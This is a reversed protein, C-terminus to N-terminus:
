KEGEKKSNTDGIGKVDLSAPIAGEVNVKEPKKALGCQYVRDDGEDIARLLELANNDFLKRTASPLAMFAEEAEIMRNLNTQMDVLDVYAGLEDYVPTRPNIDTPLIGNRAIRDVINNIDCSDKESQIAMGSEPDCYFRHDEPYPDDFPTRFKAM